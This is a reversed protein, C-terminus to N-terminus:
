EGDVDGVTATETKDIIYSDFGLEPVFVKFRIDEKAFDDLVDELTRYRDKFIQTTDLKFVDNWLYMLVKESFIEYSNMETDKLFYIGLRKDESGLNEQAAQIIKNNIAKAFKGWELQTRCLPTTCQNKHETDDFNNRIAKMKWRRKFATDLTFVNQDATNMTALITLNNPIKVQQTRDGYVESSIDENSIGYESEGTATRDLLQFIEGFIAPANGRNIEEIVLYQMGDNEECKALLRTFPGAIFDYSITNDDANGGDKSHVKPLIQGVFDSYTYDPHFVVRESNQENLIYKEKIYHSKGCGPVGYILLNEGIVNNYETTTVIIQKPNFHKETNYIKLDYLREGFLEMARNSVTMKMNRATSETEQLFGWRLLAMIPKADAYNGAESPLTFNNLVRM